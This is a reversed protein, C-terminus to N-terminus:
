ANLYCARFARERPQTNTDLAVSFDTGVKWPWGMLSDHRLIVRGVRGGWLYLFVGNSVADVLSICLQLM